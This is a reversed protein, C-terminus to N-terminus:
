ERRLWSWLFVGEFDGKWQLLQPSYAGFHTKPCQAQEESKLETWKILPSENRLGRKSQLSQSFRREQAGYQHQTPYLCHYINNSTSLLREKPLIGKSKIPPCFGDKASSHGKSVTGPLSHISKKCHELKQHKGIRYSMIWCNQSMGGLKLEVKERSSKSIQGLTWLAERIVAPDAM